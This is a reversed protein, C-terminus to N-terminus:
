GKISLAKALRTLSIDYRYQINFHGEEFEEYEHPIGAKKLTEAFIRAGLFLFFEDRRGCDLYVLKFDKLSRPNKRLVEIPDKEKWRKWVAPLLEGTYERFPLDFKTKAKSNPSYCASMAILNLAAHDERSSKPMTDFKKIYPVLGGAKELVRLAPPFEPVIHM